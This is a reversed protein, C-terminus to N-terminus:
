RSRASSTATSRRASASYRCTPLGGHTAEGGRHPSRQAGSRPPAGVPPRRDWGTDEGELFHGFLRKQLAVGAVGDDTCFELGHLELWKRESGARRYGEFGGRTHLHDARNRNTASLVPVTIKEPSGCRDDSGYAPLEAASGERNAVLEEAPLTASGAIPEGINPDPYRTSGVRYADRRPNV